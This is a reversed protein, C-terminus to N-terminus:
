PFQQVSEQELSGVSSMVAGNLQWIHRLSCRQFTPTSWLTCSKLRTFKMRLTWYLVVPPNKHVRSLVNPDMVSSVGVTQVVWSWTATLWYLNWGACLQLYNGVWSEPLIKLGASILHGEASLVTINQLFSLVGHQFSHVVPVYRWVHRRQRFCIDCLQIQSL